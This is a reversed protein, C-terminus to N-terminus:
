KIGHSTDTGSGMYTFFRNPSHVLSGGGLGGPDSLLWLTEFISELCALPGCPVPSPVLSLLVCPSQLGRLPQSSGWGKALSPQLSPTFRSPASAPQFRSKVDGM